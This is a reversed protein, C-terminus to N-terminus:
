KVITNVVSYDLPFLKPCFVCGTPKLNFTLFDHLEVHNASFFLKASDSSSSTLILFYILKLSGLAPIEFTSILLVDFFTETVICVALGPITMPLPPSSTLLSFFSNLCSVFLLSAWILIESTLLGSNFAAKTPIFM